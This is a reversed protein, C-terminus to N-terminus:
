NSQQTSSSSSASSASSSSTASSAKASTKKPIKSYPYSYAGVQLDVIGREKMQAAISPYYAMKDAFTTIKAFVENGDNMYIIIRQPNQKTPAYKIESVATRIPEDLTAFGRIVKEFNAGKQFNDYLPFGPEPNNMTKDLIKSDGLVLHFKGNVLIYGAKISEQVVLDVTTPNMVRVNLEAIQDNNRRATKMISQEHGFVGFVSRNKKIDTASIIEKPTLDENGTVNITHVMSAPSIFWCMGLTLVTLLVLMASAQRTQRQLTFVPQLKERKAFLRAAYDRFKFNREDDTPLAIGEEIEAEKEDINTETQEDVHRHKKTFLVIPEEDVSTPQPEDVKPAAKEKKDDKDKKVFFANAASQAKKAETEIDLRSSQKDSLQLVDWPSPPTNKKNKSEHKAM